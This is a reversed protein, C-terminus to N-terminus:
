DGYYVFPAWVAPQRRTKDADVVFERKTESLAVGPLKGDKIKRFFREVFEATSGDLVPWLTLITSANGGAYLAFPLGLIGEGAVWKGVGTECASIFVLDSRFDFASLESARLYGDESQGLNTQSLVIGSLDPNKQDLYGHTSFVVYRYRQLGGEDQLRKVTAESANAGSFLSDGVKLEFLTALRSLEKAAGPLNPWILRAAPGDSAGRLADIGASPKEPLPGVSYVPDGVALMPSRKSQEYRKLRDRSFSMLSISQISSIDHKEVLFAEGSRLTELPILALPGDPSVYWRRATLVETPLAKLLWSSLEQRIEESDSVLKAGEIAGSEAAQMRFSGDKLKWILKRPRGPPPYRLGAVGDPMALAARYAELTTSLNAYAPLLVSGRGGNGDIWLLLLDPDGQVFELIVSDEALLLAADKANALKFEAAERYLPYKSRLTADLAVFEATLGSRQAELESRQAVDSTGPIRGDLAAIRFELDSLAARNAVPLANRATGRTSSTEILTRAKSLEAVRMAGEFDGLKAELVALSKYAPTITSFFSRRLADSLGGESRLTEAAEVVRRYLSRAEELDGNAVLVSALGRLSIVTNVNRPGLKQTRAAVVKEFLQRAEDRQGADGLTAALNHLSKLTEPHTEGFKRIRISYVDRHIDVAEPYRGLAALIAGMNSRSLLTLHNEPGLATTRLRVVETITELAEAYRGATRLALSLNNQVSLRSPHTEPLTKVLVELSYRYTEIAEDNRGLDSLVAAINHLTAITDINEDGLQDRTTRLIRQYMALAEGHRGSQYLFGAYEHGINMTEPKSEGIVELALSYARKETDIAESAYGSNFLAGALDSMAEITRVNKEGLRGILLDTIARSETLAADFKSKDILQRVILTRTTLTDPHDAGLIQTRLRLVEALADDAEQARGLRRLAYGLNHETELTEPHSKSLLNVRGKYVLALAERGADFKSQRLLTIGLTNGFRLKDREPDGPLLNAKAIVEQMVKEADAARSTSMVLAMRDKVRLTRLGDPGDAALAASLARELAETPSADGTVAVKAVLFLTDAVDQKSLGASADLAAQAPVAAEAFRGQGLLDEARITSISRRNTQQQVASAPFADLVALSESYAGRDMLQRAQEIGADVPQQGYVSPGVLVFVAALILPRLLHM